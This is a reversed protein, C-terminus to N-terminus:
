ICGEVRLLDEFEEISYILFYNAVQSKKVSDAFLIQSDTQKNKGVKLEVFLIKHNLLIVLDSVGARLGQTKLSNIYAPANVVGAKFDNKVAFFTTIRGQSELIRLYNVCQIQLAKESKNRM